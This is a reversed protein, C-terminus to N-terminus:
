SSAAIRMQSGNRTLKGKIKKQKEQGAYDRIETSRLERNGEKQDKMLEEKLEELNTM